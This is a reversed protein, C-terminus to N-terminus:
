RRRAALEAKRSMVATEAFDMRALERVLKLYMNTLLSKGGKVSHPRRLTDLAQHKQVIEIQDKATTLQLHFKTRALEPVIKDAADALWPNDGYIELSERPRFLPLMGWNQFM